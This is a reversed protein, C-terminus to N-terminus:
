NSSPQIQAGVSFLEAKALSNNVFQASAYYGTIGSTNAVKSKSFILFDNTAVSPIAASNGITLAIFPMTPDLGTPNILATVTGLFIINGMAGAFLTSGSSQQTTVTTYVSDGIQCSANIASSFSITVFNM